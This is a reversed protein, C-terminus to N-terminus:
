SSIGNKRRKEWSKRVSEAIKNKTEELIVRGRSGPGGLANQNGEKAKSMNDRAEQSVFHGTLGKSINECHEKSYKRGTNHIQMHEARTVVQLNELNNNLPDGDIHHVIENSSLDRGLFEEVVLRSIYFGGTKPRIYLDLPPSLKM